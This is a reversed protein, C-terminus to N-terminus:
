PTLLLVQLSITRKPRTFSTVHLASLLSRLSQVLHFRYLISYISAEYQATFRVLYISHIDPFRRCVIHFFVFNSVVWSLIYSYKQYFHNIVSKPWFHQLAVADSGWADGIQEFRDNWWNDKLYSGANFSAINNINHGKYIGFLRGMFANCSGKGATIRFHLSTTQILTPNLRVCVQLYLKRENLAM